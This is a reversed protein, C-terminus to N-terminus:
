PGAAIEDVDVVSWTTGSKELELSYKYQSFVRGVRYTQEEGRDRSLTSCWTGGDTELKADACDGSYAYGETRLWAEIAEAATTAGPTATPPTAVTSSTPGTTTPSPASTSTTTTTVSSTAPATTAAPGTDADSGCGALVLATGALVPLFRRRGGSRRVTDIGM